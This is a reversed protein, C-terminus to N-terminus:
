STHAHLCGRLDAAAPIRSSDATPAPFWGTDESLAIHTSVWQAMERTGPLQFRGMENKVRSQSPPRLTTGAVEVAPM